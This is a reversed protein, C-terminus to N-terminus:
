LWHHINGPHRDLPYLISCIAPFSLTNRGPSIYRPWDAMIQIDM